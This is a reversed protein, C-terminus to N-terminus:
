TFLNNFYPKELYDKLSIKWNRQRDLNEKKLRSNVMIVSLPRRAFEKKGLIKASIRSISFKKEINLIKLLENTLEYFSCSGHSAMNYKGSKNNALLILSNYALDKTFTPQWVRDGIEMEKKGQKILKSIHSTIKGIFNNDKKEGGFFGGMRVSISNNSSNLVVNEAELKLSGYECLPRPITNEDVLKKTDNYILFSQPYFIKSNNIKAFNVINKTGELINIRGKEKDKECLDANVLAACHIIFDPKLNKYKEFSHSNSVNFESKNFCYIKPNQVHTKIQNFFSDGLMGEGGTILFKKGSLNQLYDKDQNFVSKM